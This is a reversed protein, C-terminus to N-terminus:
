VVLAALLVMALGLGALTRAALWGYTPAEIVSFVLSVLALVVIVGGGLDLRPADPDASETVFRLTGALAL